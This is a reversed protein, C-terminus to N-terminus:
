KELINYPTVMINSEVNTNLPYLISMTASLFIVQLQGCVAPASKEPEIDATNLINVDYYFTKKTQSIYKEIEPLISQSFM